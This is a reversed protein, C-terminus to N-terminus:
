NTTLTYTGTDGSTYTTAILYYTGTTPPTYVLLSDNATSAGDDDFALEGCAAGGYLFLYTDFGAGTATMTINVTRGATLSMAYVNFFSGARPGDTPEFGTLSDNLTAPTRLTTASFPDCLNTATDSCGTYDTSCDSLCSLSGGAFGQAFCSDTGFDFGDCTEFGNVVGDGCFTDAVCGSLDYDLCDPNCRVTGSAASFDVCTFGSVNFGDCVEGTEIIGNGCVSGTSICSATNFACGTCRLTGSDFGLSTCSQGDLDAGDCAEGAEIVNNGCSAPNTQTCLSFDLECAPSCSLFGGTYGFNTCNSGQLDGGDCSEGIDVVGNGCNTSTNTCSETNLTCDFSCFATGGDFGLETCDPAIGDCEEGTDVTGNGCASVPESCETACNTDECAQLAETAAQCAPEISTACAIACNPELESPDASNCPCAMFCEYFSACVGTVSTPFNTGFAAATETACADQTCTLCADGGAGGNSLADHCDVPTTDTGGDSTGTDSGGTDTGGTGTDTVGGGGGGGGSGGRGRTATDTGCATAIATVALLALSLRLTATRM